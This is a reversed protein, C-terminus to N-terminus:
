TNADNTIGITLTNGTIGRTNTGSTICHHIIDSAISAIITLTSCPINRSITGSTIVVTLTNCTITRPTPGRM